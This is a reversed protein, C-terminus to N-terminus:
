APPDAEEVRNRGLRKAQLLAADAEETLSISTDFMPFAAIGTSFTAYLAGGPHSHPLTSFDKRIRDIVTKAEPLNVGPLAM